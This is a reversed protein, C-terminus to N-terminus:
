FIYFYIKVATVYLLFKVKEHIKLLDQNQELIKMFDSSPLLNLTHSACSIHGPLSIPHFEIDDFEDAEVDNDTGNGYLDEVNMEIGYSRFAKLFNAGNDTITKVIKVSDLGYFDNIETILEAIKDFSHTGKFRRCALAASERKM